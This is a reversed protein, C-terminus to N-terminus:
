VYFFIKGPVNSKNKHVHSYYNSVSRSVSKNSKSISKSHKYSRISSEKTQSCSGSTIQSANRSIGTRNNGNKRKKRQKHITKLTSHVLKRNKQDSIFRSFSYEYIRRYIINLIDDFLTCSLNIEASMAEDEEFDMEEYNFLCKPQGPMNKYQSINTTTNTVTNNMTTTATAMSNTLNSGSATASQMFTYGTHSYNMVKTSASSQFSRLDSSPDFQSNITEYSSPYSYLQAHRTYRDLNYNNDEDEDFDDIDNQLNENSELNKNNNVNLFHFYLPSQLIQNSLTELQDVPINNLEFISGSNIFTQYLGIFLPLLCPPILVDPMKNLPTKNDFYSLPPVFESFTSSAQSTSQSTSNTNNSNIFTRDSQVSLDM